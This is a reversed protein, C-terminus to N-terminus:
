SFRRLVISTGHGKHTEPKLSWRKSAPYNGEYFDLVKDGFSALIPGIVSVLLTAAEKAAAKLIM